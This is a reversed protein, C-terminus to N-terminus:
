IKCIIKGTDADVACFDHSGYGGGVFLMGDGYAPTAIPRNGPLRLVWGAKGDPTRFSAPELDRVPGPLNVNMAASLDIKQAATKAPHDAPKAAAATKAPKAEQSDRVPLAAVVFLLSLSGGLCLRWRTLFSM